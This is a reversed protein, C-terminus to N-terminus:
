LICSAHEGLTGENHILPHSITITTAGKPIIVVAMNGIFFIM